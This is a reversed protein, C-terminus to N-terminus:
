KTEDMQVCDMDAARAARRGGHRNAALERCNRRGTPQHGVATMQRGASRQPRPTGAAPLEQKTKARVVARAAGRGWGRERLDGGGSRGREVPGDAVEDGGDLGRARQRVRLQPGRGRGGAWGEDERRGERGAGEEHHHGRLVARAAAGAGGRDGGRGM